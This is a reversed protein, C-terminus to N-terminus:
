LAQARVGRARMLQPPAARNGQLSNCQVHSTQNEGILLASQKGLGQKGTRYIISLLKAVQPTLLFYSFYPENMWIWVWVPIEVKLSILHLTM